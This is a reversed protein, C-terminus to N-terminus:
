IRIVWYSNYDSFSVRRANFIWAPIQRGGGGGSDGTGWDELVAVEPTRERGGGRKGEM